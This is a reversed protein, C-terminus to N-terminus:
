GTDQVSKVTRRTAPTRGTLRRVARTMHPQDAFGCMLAIEALPEKTEDIMRLARRSQAALRYRAPSTGFAAFFGRSVAAAALGAKAAWARLSVPGLRLEAALADPWDSALPRSVSEPTMLDLVDQTGALAARILADPDAVEFVPPLAISLPLTINVVAAGKSGILNSHGEFAHHAVVNGAQVRWRGTDGREIYSGTLVIAAYARTHRHWPLRGAPLMQMSKGLM